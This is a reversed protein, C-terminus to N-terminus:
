WGRKKPKGIIPKFNAQPKHQDLLNWAGQDADPSDDPTQYGPEIGKLQNNGEIMDPNYMEDQNYFNEGNIYSPQMQAIRMYKNIKDTTDELVVLEKKGEAKRNKNHTTLADRFPKTSFQKEIYWLIGVGGPLKDNLASMFEFADIIPVRRVFSKLCHREWDGSAKSLGAWVRVAKFDSTPNNEFSPDFYGIIMSYQKLLHWMKIWHIYSDKFLEGEVHNEHFFETRGYIGAAKVKSNIMALTYRQWWAPQGTKPDIAFIKSHYIGDRKPAGPKIDGVMHALISQAHIRNGAVVLTGGRTDLAFFMAGMIKKIVKKVRKQNNVIDDDDVDDCAGYNPRLQGKRAGRPSQDRGFALFRIGEKTTFDGDQWDGFNFQEGFDHIFLANFQLQAQIDSLLNCADDENKGMLLMGTLTRRAIKWMPIGIVTHVSKAHERPWEAIAIKNPDSEPRPKLEVENALNIQFDACETKGEDTYVSLYTMFFFGYDKLARKIRADQDWKTESINVTTSDQTQECFLKWDDYTRREIVKNAM